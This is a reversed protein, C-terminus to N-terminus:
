IKDWSLDMCMAILAVTMTALTAQTYIGSAWALARIDWHERLLAFAFWGAALALSATAAVRRRGFRDVFFGAVAASAGGVGLAVGGVLLTYDTDDWRLTGVFLKYGLASLMGMAFN